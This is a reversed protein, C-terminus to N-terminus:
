YTQLGWLARPVSNGFKAKVFVVNITM